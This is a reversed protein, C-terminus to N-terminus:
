HTCNTLAKQCRLTPRLKLCDIYNEDGVMPLPEGKYMQNVFVAKQEDTMQDLREEAGISSEHKKM